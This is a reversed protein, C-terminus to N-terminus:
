RDCLRVAELYELGKVDTIWNLRLEPREAAEEMLALLRTYHSSRIRIWTKRPRGNKWTASRTLTTPRWTFGAHSSVRHRRCRCCSHGCPTRIMEATRHPHAVMRLVVQVM